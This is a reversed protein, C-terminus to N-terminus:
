EAPTWRWRGEGNLERRHLESLPGPYRAVASPASDWRAWVGTADVRDVVGRGYRTAFVVDGARLTLPARPPPVHWPPDDSM